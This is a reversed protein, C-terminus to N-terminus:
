ALLFARSNDSFGLADRRKWQFSSLRSTISEQDVIKVELLKFFNSEVFCINVQYKFIKGKLVKTGPFM